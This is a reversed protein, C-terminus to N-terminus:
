EDDDDDDEGEDEVVIDSTMTQLFAVITRLDEESGRYRARHEVKEDPDYVSPKEARKQLYRVVLDSEYEKLGFGSLDPGRRKKGTRPNIRKDLDIAVVSHCRDCRKSKFLDADARAQQPVSVAIGFGAFIGLAVVRCLHKM